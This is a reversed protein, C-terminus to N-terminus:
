GPTNLQEQQILRANQLASGVQNAFIQIASLEEDTFEHPQRYDIYMIGVMKVM